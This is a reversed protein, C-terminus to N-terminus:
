DAFKLILFLLIVLGVMFREYPLTVESRRGSPKVGSAGNRRLAEERHIRALVIGPDADASGYLLPVKTLLDHELGDAAQRRQTLSAAFEEADGPAGLRRSARGFGEREEAVPRKGLTM